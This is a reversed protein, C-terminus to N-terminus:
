QHAEVCFIPTQAVQELDGPRHRWFDSFLLLAGTAATLSIYAFSFGAAYVFLALASLWHGGGQQGRRFFVTIAWLVTAGSALRISTFSAADMGADKLAMRCLVSNGAFAIMALSTLAIVRAIRM